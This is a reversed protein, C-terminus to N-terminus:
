RFFPPFFNRVRILFSYNRNSVDAHTHTHTCSYPPENNEDNQAGDKRENVNIELFEDTGRRIELAKEENKGQETSAPKARWLWCFCCLLPFAWPALWTRHLSFFSFFANTRYYSKRQTFWSTCLVSYLSSPIFFSFISIIHYPIFHYIASRPPYTNTSWIWLSISVSCSPLLTISRSLLCHLSHFM